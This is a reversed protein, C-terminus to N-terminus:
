KNYLDRQQLASEFEAESSNHLAPPPLPLVPQIPRGWRSFISTSSTTRIAAAVEPPALHPQVIAPTQTIEPVTEAMDGETGILNATEETQDKAIVRGHDASSFLSNWERRQHTPQSSKKFTLPKEAQDHEHSHQVAARMLLAM